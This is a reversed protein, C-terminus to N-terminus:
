KIEKKTTRTRRPWSNKLDKPDVAPITDMFAAIDPDLAPDNVPKPQKSPTIALPERGANAKKQPTLRDAFDAEEVQPEAPPKRGPREPIIKPEPPKKNKACQM